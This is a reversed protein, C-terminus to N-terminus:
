QKETSEANINFSENWYPSLLISKLDYEKKRYKKYHQKEQSLNRNLISKVTGYFHDRKKPNILYLGLKESVCIPKKLECFLNYIIM